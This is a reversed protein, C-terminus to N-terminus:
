FRFGLKLRFERPLTFADLGTTLNGNRTNVRVQHSEDTVNSAEAGVIGQFRGGIPFQYTANLSLTYYDEFTNADRPETRGTTRIRQGSVPHFVNASPGLGWAEGASYHFFASTMVDGKGLVWRKMGVLNVLYDRDVALAGNWLSTSTINCLGGGGRLTCGGMAENHDSNDTISDITGDTPLFSVNANVSWNNRFARNVAMTLGQHERTNNPWNRLDRVVAGAEDYQLSASFINDIESVTFRSTFTWNDAFQWDFGLSAEDKYHPEIGAIADSPAPEVRRQFRDYSGTARNFLFQDYINEGNNGRTFETFVVGLGINHYYRGLSGRVLLTGDANIDYVVTARPAWVSYENVRENRDNDISQEDYRLGVSFTLKDGVEFRDQVYAASMLTNMSIPPGLEFVRKTSPTLFGGTCERCFGRGRYETGISTLNEFTVDQFDVGGKLEHNGKFLTVSVNAQDRPYDNFGAGLRISPGNYRLGDNLDQYRFDNGNPDDFSVGAIIPAPPAAARGVFEERNALKAELFASSTMAYSWTGTQLRNNIPFTMVAYQDGVGAAGIASSPSDILTLAVQHRSGPQFNVKGILPESTRTVNFTEGSRTRDLRNDNLENYSAFFWAKDSWIPGGLGAEFSNIQEDPREIGLWDESRWQPNQGIYLFDGHLTNTGTKITSNMVGSTARGYEPAFGSTEMRTNTIATSPIQFRLEGGRRPMSVDVGDIFVGLETSIGGNVSVRAYDQKRRTVLGPMMQVSTNYNRTAFTVNELAEEQIASTAGIDYKSILAAEATVTITESTATQLTLAVDHRQGMELAVAREATGLGELAANVTYAGAQLLAFRYKGEADTMETRTNQPGTLTVTVGPLGDGEADTVTGDITGTQPGDASLPLACLAIACIGILSKRAIAKVNRDELYM